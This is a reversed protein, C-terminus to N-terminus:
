GAGDSTARLERLHEAITAVPAVWIRDRRRVLYDLMWQFEGSGTGLRASGIAHMTLILWRGQTLARDIMGVIEEGRTHEVPRSWLCALDCNHPSNAFGYEGYGRGAIFHKAIIPVYSQRTEGMGVYTMYCPYAFSRSERPFFQQLRAEAEVVDAEMDKITMGELGGDSPEDRFNRSCTHGITHNGIEHGSEHIPVWPELAAQWNDGRPPIYFTGRIEREDMLPIATNLQTETGDDFSLSVAAQYDGPWVDYNIQSM